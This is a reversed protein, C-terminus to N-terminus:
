VASSFSVSWCSCPFPPLVYLPPSSPATSIPTDTLAFGVGDKPVQSGRHSDSHLENGLARGVLSKPPPM